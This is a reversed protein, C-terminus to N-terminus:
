KSLVFHAEKIEKQKTTEDFLEVMLTYDGPELDTLTLPTAMPFGVESSSPSQTLRVAPTRRVLKGGKFFAAGVVLSPPSAGAAPYVRFFLLMTQGSTFRNLTPMVIRNHGFALV